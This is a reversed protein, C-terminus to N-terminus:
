VWAFGTGSRADQFRVFVHSRTSRHARGRLWEEGARAREIHVEVDIPHPEDEIGRAHGDAKDTLPWSANLVTHAGRRHQATKPEGYDDTAPLVSEVLDRSKTM